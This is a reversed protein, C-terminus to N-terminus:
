VSPTMQPNLFMSRPIGEQQCQIWFIIADEYRLPGGLVGGRQRQEIFIKSQPTKTQEFVQLAREIKRRDNPHVTQARAPDVAQLREYLSQTDQDPYVSKSDEAALRDSDKSDNKFDSVLTEWLISEIYYNTGGVVVAM